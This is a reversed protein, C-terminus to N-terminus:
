TLRRGVLECLSAHMMYHSKDAHVIDTSLALLADRCRTRMEESSFKNRNDIRCAMVVLIHTLFYFECVNCM